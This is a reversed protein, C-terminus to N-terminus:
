PVLTGLHIRSGLPLHAKDIDLVRAILQFGGPHLHVWELKLRVEEDTLGVRVLRASYIGPAVELTVNPTVTLGDFAQLDFVGDVILMPEDSFPQM